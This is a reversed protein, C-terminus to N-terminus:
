LVAIVGLMGTLALGLQAGVAVVIPGLILGASVVVPNSVVVVQASSTSQVVGPSAAFAGVPALVAGAAICLALVRVRMSDM